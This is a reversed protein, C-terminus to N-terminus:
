PQSNSVFTAIPRPQMDILSYVNQLQRVSAVTVIPAPKVDIRSQAKEPHQSMAETVRDDDTRDISLQAKPLQVESAVIATGIPQWNCLSANEFHLGRHARNQHIM